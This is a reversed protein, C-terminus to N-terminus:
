NVLEKHNQTIQNTPKENSNPTKSNLLNKFQIKNIKKKKKAPTQYIKSYNYETFNLNFTISFINLKSSIGLLKVPFWLSLEICNAKPTRRPNRFIQFTWSSTINDLMKTHKKKGIKAVFKPYSLKFFPLAM